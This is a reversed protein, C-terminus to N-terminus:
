SPAAQLPRPRLLRATWPNGRARPSQKAVSFGQFLMVGVYLGREQVAKVRDYLRQKDWAAECDSAWAL